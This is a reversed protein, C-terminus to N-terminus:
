IHSKTPDWNTTNKTFDRNGNELPTSQKRLNPDGSKSMPM